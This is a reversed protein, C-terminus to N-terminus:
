NVPQGPLSVQYENSAISKVLTVFGAEAQDLSAYREGSDMVVEGEKTKFRFRWKGKQGGPPRGMCYELMAHESKM